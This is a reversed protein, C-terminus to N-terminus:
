SASGTPRAMPRIATRKGDDLRTCLDNVNATALYRVTEPRTAHGSIRYYHGYGIRFINEIRRPVDTFRNLHDNKVFFANIGNENCTILTYEAAAFITAWRQLSVGAYDGGQWVYTEDYPMEYEIPPPFKANYEVIFVDPALGQALLTRVIAADNGDLDVSAVRVDRLSQNFPALGQTAIAAANDKTIWRQVFRLRGAAEFALPEGGAWIGRWGLALLIITNCETGGEVGFELFTSPEKLDIRDLIELLIGDEDNQSFYRRGNALVPNNLEREKAPLALRALDHRMSLLTPALAKEALKQMQKILWQKM